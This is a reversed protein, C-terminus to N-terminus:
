LFFKSEGLYVVFQLIFCLCFGPVTDEVASAKPFSAQMMTVADLRQGMSQRLLVKSGLSGSKAGGM